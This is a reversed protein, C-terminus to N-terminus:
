HKQKAIRKLIKEAEKYNYGKHKVIVEFQGVAQQYQGTKIYCLGLYWNTISRVVKSDKNGDLLCEFKGIAESHRELEMLTLGNFLLVDQEAPMSQSLNELIALAGEYDKEYFLEKARNFQSSKFFYANNNTIPSKYYEEYPSNAFLNKNSLIRFLGTSMIAIVISAAAVWKGIRIIKHGQKKDAIKNHASPHKVGITDAEKIAGYLETHIKDLLERLKKIQLSENIIKSLIFHENLSSDNKLLEEFEFREIIGMEKDLYREINYKRKESMYMRRILADSYITKTIEESNNENVNNIIFSIIQSTTIPSRM